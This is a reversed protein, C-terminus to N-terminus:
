SEVLKDRRRDFEDADMEGAAFRRKLIELPDDSTMTADRRVGNSRTALVVLAVIGAIVLLSGVGMWVWMWGSMHDGWDGYMM